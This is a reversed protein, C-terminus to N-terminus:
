LSRCVATAPRPNANFYVVLGPKRSPTSFVVKWRRLYHLCRLFRQAFRKVSTKLADHLVLLDSPKSWIVFGDRTADFPRM